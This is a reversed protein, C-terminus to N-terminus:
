SGASPQAALRGESRRARMRVSWALILGSCVAIAAVAPFALHAGGIQLLGGVLLPALAAGAQKVSLAGFTRGRVAEDGMSAEYAPMVVFVTMEGATFVVMDLILWLPNRLYAIGLYAIAFFALGGAFGKAPSLGGLWRNLPIQLVAVMATNVLTMAAYLELGGPVAGRLFAPFITEIVMYVGLQMAGGLVYLWLSPGHSMRRMAERNTVTRLQRGTEPVTVFLLLVVLLSALAAGLFVATPHAVVFFAGLFPGIAAGVNMAVRGYAYAQAREEPLTVDAIAASQAPGSVARALGQLGNLLAYALAGHSFAFGAMALISLTNGLLMTRRRGLHDAAVGGLTGALVRVLPGVGAVVGAVALGSGAQTLRVAIFPLVMYTAVAGLLRAVALSLVPGRPRLWGSVAM